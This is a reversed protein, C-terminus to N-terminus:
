VKTVGTTAVLPADIVASGILEFVEEGELKRPVYFAVFQGPAIARQPEKFSVFVQGDEIKEITCEQLPQRYRIRAKIKQGVHAELNGENTESLDTAILESAFLAEDDDGVAVVIENTEPRREVIYYPVGGGIGLGTRQGITYYAHGKHTGIKEGKTTIIDGEKEPIRERLFDVMEVKGVFCIGQSDKKGAVILDHKEAIERVESKQLHGIPFLIKKLQEQNLQCLFYTQDKNQDVASLLRTACSHSDRPHCLFPSGSLAQRGVPLRLCSCQRPSGMVPGATEQPERAPHGGSLVRETNAVPGTECIARAYHGTAVYDCGMKEAERLLFGFKMYKNCLVDPNPTRGAEYERIMYEYVNARYEDEFDFTLFEIDLAAAVRMADRRETRWSCESSDDGDSWNKMFAGIVEYGAELLLVASVSSDVGGSMGLLVKKRRTEMVPVIYCIGEIKDIFLAEQM